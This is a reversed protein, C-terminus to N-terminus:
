KRHLLIGLQTRLTYEVEGGEGIFIIFAGKYNTDIM